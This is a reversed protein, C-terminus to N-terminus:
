APAKIGHKVLVNHMTDSVQAGQSIWHQIRDSKLETQKRITDHFGLIEVPKGKKVASKSEVVVVRYSPNNRRGIRQLRITLM